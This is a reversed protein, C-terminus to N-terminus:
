AVGCAPLKPLDKVKKAAALMAAEADAHAARINGAEAEFWQVRGMVSTWQVKIQDRVNPDPCKDRLVTMSKLVEQASKKYQEFATENKVIDNM